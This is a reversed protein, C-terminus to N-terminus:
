RAVVSQRFAFVHPRSRSSIRILAVSMSTWHAVILTSAALVMLVSKISRTIRETMKSQNATSISSGICLSERSRKTSSTSNSCPFMPQLSLLANFRLTRLSPTQSTTPHDCAGMTDSEMKVLKCLKDARNVRANDLQVKRSNRKGHHLWNKRHRCHSKRSKQGKHHCRM